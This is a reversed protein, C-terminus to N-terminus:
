IIGTDKSDEKNEDEKDRSKSILSILKDLRPYLENSTIDKDSRTYLSKFGNSLFNSIKDKTDLFQNIVSDKPKTQETSSINEKNNTELSKVKIDEKIVEKKKNFEPTPIKAIQNAVFGKVRGKISTDKPLPKGEADLQDTAGGLKNVLFSKIGEVPSNPKEEPPGTSKETFAKYKEKLTNIGGTVSVIVGKEKINTGVEILKEYANKASEKGKEYMDKVDVGNSKLFIDLTKTVAQFTDATKELLKIVSSDKHREIQNNTVQKFQAYLAKAQNKAKDIM